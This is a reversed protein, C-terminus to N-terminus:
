RRWEAKTNAAARNALEDTLIDNKQGLESVEALLDNRQNRMDELEQEVRAQEAIRHVNEEYQRGLERELQRALQILERWGEGGFLDRACIEDVRPTDSMTYLKKTDNGTAERGDM